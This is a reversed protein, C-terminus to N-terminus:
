KSWSRRPTSPGKSSGRELRRRVEQPKLAGGSSLLRGRNGDRGKPDSTTPIPTRVRVVSVKCTSARSLRVRSPFPGPDPLLPRVSLVGRGEFFVSVLDLENSGQGYAGAAHTGLLAVFAVLTCLLRLRLASM